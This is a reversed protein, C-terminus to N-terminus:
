LTAHRWKLCGYRRAGSEEFSAQRYRERKPTPQPADADRPLYETFIAVDRPNARRQLRQDRHRQARARGRGPVAGDLDLGCLVGDLLGLRSSATAPRWLPKMSFAFASTASALARMMGVGLGDIVGVRHPLGLCARACASDAAAMEVGQAHGGGLWADAENARPVM